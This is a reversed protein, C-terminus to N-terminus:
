PKVMADIIEAVEEITYLRVADGPRDNSVRSTEITHHGDFFTWDGDSAVSQLKTPVQGYLLFHDGERVEHNGAIFRLAVDRLRVRESLAAVQERLAQCEEALTM